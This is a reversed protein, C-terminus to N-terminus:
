GGKELENILRQQTKNVNLSAICLNSESADNLTGTHLPTGLSNTSLAATRPTSLLATSSLDTSSTRLGTTLATSSLASIYTKNTNPTPKGAWTKERAYYPQESYGHKADPNGNRKTAHYVHKKTVPSGDSVPRPSLLSIPEPKQGEATRVLRDTLTPARRKIRGGKM